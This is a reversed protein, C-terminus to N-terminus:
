AGVDAAVREFVEVLRRAHDHWDFRTKARARAAGALRKRLEVDSYLILIKEVLDQPDLPSFYLAAQGCIEHHVPIDSAVVPLGSAMAEVLPHGFSEALSPFVFVDSEEYLKEIEEYSVSGTFKVSQNVLPNLSLAEDVDRTVVEVDPFQHPDATTVVRFDNVHRERLMRVAKLLTTLNKYDSYESVYLLQLPKKPVSGGEDGESERGSRRAGNFKHVSVGFYNVVAKAESVPITRRVDGLMSESATMVVASCKASLFILWRRVVFEVKFSLSKRPLIKERYLPSFLVPNRIMLVQKRPPLLMGFDSSALLVDAKEKKVLGRFIIQDWLLRRWPSKYGIDTPVVKLNDGLQRVANALGAPVYFVYEHQTNALERLLNHLYTVAGGSKASVANVVIKLRRRSLGAVTDAMAGAHPGLLHGPM